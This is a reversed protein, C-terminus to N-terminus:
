FYLYKKRWNIYYRSAWGGGLVAGISIRHWQMFIAIVFILFCVICIGLYFYMWKKARKQEDTLKM